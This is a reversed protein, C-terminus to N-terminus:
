ANGTLLIFKGNVKANRIEALAEAYKELPFTRTIRPNLKGEEWLDFITRQAARVRDPQRARYDTWQIGIAGVNKVLLYNAGIKPIDGSAFGVVVLRGCWAMARLAAANLEGGVPDIVIDAGVGATAEAVAERLGDRLNNMSSDVVVDAGLERAFTAGHPGRTAAIVKGAGLAKALQLAAMGIGGTAGLVLVTDGERFQGRDILAFYATQYVLGLAAGVDFPMAEPMPFCFAAPAAAKEAYTGYYPLVIVKQGTAGAGVAFIRGAGSLGPSFPLPPKNQYKGEIYLIDPFNVDAAEINVVVEGAGPAPDELDGYEAQDFPAFQRVIVAKM